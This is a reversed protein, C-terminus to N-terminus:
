RGERELRDVDTVRVYYRGTKRRTARLRGSEIWRRVTRSHVGLRKSVAMTTMWM